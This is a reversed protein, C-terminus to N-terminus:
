QTQEKKIQTLENIYQDIKIKDFLSRKGVKVEAGISRAFEVGRNRGLSLYYCVENTDLLRKEGLRYTIFQNEREKM